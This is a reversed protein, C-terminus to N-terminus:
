SVCIAYSVCGDEGRASITQSYTSCFENVARKVPSSDYWTHAKNMNMEYDHGMIYSGKKVKKIAQELDKKVGEYSHDGDIYIMDFFHDPYKSLITSSDGKEIHIGNQTKAWESLRAYQSYLNTSSVNNGDHDGSSTEGEFLDILVFEKPTLTKYLYDSFEGKFIGIEAIHGNKPILHLVMDKRTQFVTVM